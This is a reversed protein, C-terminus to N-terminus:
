SLAWRALEPLLPRQGLQAFPSAPYRSRRAKEREAALEVLHAGFPSQVTLGAPWTDEDLCWEAFAVLAGLPSPAERSRFVRHNATSAVLPPSEAVFAAGLAALLDPGPSVFGTWGFGFSPSDELGHSPQLDAGGGGHALPESPLGVAELMRAALAWADRLYDDSIVELLRPFPEALGIVLCEVGRPVLEYASATHLRPPADPGLAHRAGPDGCAAALELRDRTLEGARLRESLWAAADEARGTERRRRDLERLRQDGM